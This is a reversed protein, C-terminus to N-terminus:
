DPLWVYPDGAVRVGSEKGYRVVIINADDRGVDLYGSAWQDFRTVGTIELYYAGPDLDVTYDRRTNGARFLLEGDLYINAWDDGQAIFRVTVAPQPDVRDRPVVIIPYGPIIVPVRITIDALPMSEARIAPAVPRTAGGVFLASSAALLIWLRSRRLKAQRWRHSMIVGECVLRCSELM